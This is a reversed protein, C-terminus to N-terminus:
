IALHGEWMTINYLKTIKNNSGDFYCFLLINTIKNNSGDFYCFLLIVSNQEPDQTESCFKNKNNQDM